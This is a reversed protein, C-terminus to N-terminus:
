GGLRRIQEKLDEIATQLSVNPLEAQMDFLLDLRARLKEAPDSPEPNLFDVGQEQALVWLREYKERADADWTAQPGKVGSQQRINGALILKSHKLAYEILRELPVTGTFDVSRLIGDFKAHVHAKVEINHGNVIRYEDVAYGQNKGM